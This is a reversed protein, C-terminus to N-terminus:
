GLFLSFFSETSHHWWDGTALGAAIMLGALLCAGAGLRSWVPRVPYLLGEVRLIVNSGTISTCLAWPVPKLSGVLRAMKIITEAVQLRDGSRTAAVEDCSQETALGLDNLILRRTTPLHLASLVEAAFLRIGDRRRQHAQEHSVVTALETPSLDNLLRRSVLVQPRLLGATIAFPHPLDVIRYPVRATSPKVLALLTGLARHGKRLSRATKLVYGLVVIGTGVLILWELIGGTFYPTHVLCLHAHHGHEHCHDAAFGLLHALSPSFILLLMVLGVVLPAIAWALLFNARTAPPITGLWTDIPLYFIRSALAVCYAALLMIALAAAILGVELTM